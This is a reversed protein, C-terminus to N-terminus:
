PSLSTFFIYQWFVYMFVHKIEFSVIHSHNYQHWYHRDTQSIIAISLWTSWHLHLDNIYFRTVRRQDDPYQMKSINFYLSIMLFIISIFCFMWNYQVSRFYKMYIHHHHHHRSGFNWSLHLPSVPDLEDEDPTDLSASDVPRYGSCCSGDFPSRDSARGFTLM